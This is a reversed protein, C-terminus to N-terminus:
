IGATDPPPAVLARSRRMVGLNYLVYYGIPLGILLLTLPNQQAAAAAVGPQPAQLAALDAHGTAVRFVLRVVFLALVLAGIYTHPTYFRGQPSVEFRTHRLGLLALLGGAVVGGALAEVLSADRWIASVVLACLACLVGVRMALRAPNVPQRGFSRRARRYLLLLVVVGLLLPLMLKQDM